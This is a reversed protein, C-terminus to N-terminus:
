AKFGLARYSQYLMAQTLDWGLCADTISVGYKLRSGREKLLAQSGEYLNSEVMIGVLSDTGGTRQQIM